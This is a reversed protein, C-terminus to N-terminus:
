QAPPPPPTGTADPAPPPPTGNDQQPQSSPPPESAPTQGAAPNLPAERGGKFEYGIELDIQAGFQNTYRASGADLRYTQYARGNIFLFPLLKLRAGALLITKGDQFKGFESVDDFGRKYYSAFLQLFSLLPVEVHAIFNHGSVTNDDLSLTFGVADRIGWSAELYFGARNGLGHELVYQQKTLYQIQGNVRAPAQTFQFREIEYFTDFYSPMYRSGLYRLEAVLRFANITTTGFNFRGLAGL